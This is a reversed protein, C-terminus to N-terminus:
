GNNNIAKLFGKELQQYINPYENKYETFFDPIEKWRPHIGDFFFYFFSEIQDDSYQALLIFTLQLNSMVHNRMGTQFYNIADADWHGNISINILKQLYEEENISKLEFFLGVIHDASNFYLPGPKKNFGYISDLECFTNPFLDFFIKESMRIDPFKIYNDYAKSLDQAKKHYDNSFLLHNFFVILIIVAYKLKM